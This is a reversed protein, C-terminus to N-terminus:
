PMMFVKFTQCFNSSFSSAFYSLKFHFSVQIDHFTKTVMFWFLNSVINAITHTYIRSRFLFTALKVSNQLWKETAFAVRSDCIDTWRDM